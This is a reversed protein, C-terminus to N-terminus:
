SHRRGLEDMILGAVDDLAAHLAELDADDLGDLLQRTDEPDRGALAQELAETGAEARDQHRNSDESDWEPEGDEDWAAMVDQRMHEDTTM